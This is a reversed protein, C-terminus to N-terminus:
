EPRQNDNEKEGNEETEAAVNEKAIRVFTNCTEYSAGIFVAIWFCINLRLKLLTKKAPEVGQVAAKRYWKHVKFWSWEVGKEHGQAAWVVTNTDHNVIVTIYKHGKRYSTEDMGVHVPGDLRKSREPEIVNLARSVCRGITEWDIRMFESIICRPFCVALWGVMMDFDKTFHSGHYAWPLDATVISHEPCNIRHTSGEVEVLVAGCDLRIRRSTTDQAHTIASHAIMKTSLMHDSKSEFISFAIQITKFIIIKM